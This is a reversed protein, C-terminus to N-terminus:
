QARESACAAAVRRLRGERSTARAAASACHCVTAWQHLPAIARGSLRAEVRFRAPGVREPGVVAVAVAVEVPSERAAQRAGAAM